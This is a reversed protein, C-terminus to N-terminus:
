RIKLSSLAILALLFSIIWCRTVIKTEELGCKEFHHHIPAMKFIRKGKTIKFYYVQIIVSLAEVVFLGGVISLVIEHKIIVAIIGLIAGLSLSGTDGMFVEAPKSNFWLFGLCSGAIASCLVSLEGAHPVYILQLYHSYISNGAIYSIVAFTGACIIIPVAALGDLGDTINVANSSGIIVISSFPIYFLGLDILTNKFFPFTLKQFIVQDHYYNRVLLSALCAFIFQFIVKQKATIGYHNQRKLKKWDDIFGLSTFSCLVFLSIWIYPNELNTLLLTTISISIMIMIGGLTPTGAKQEHNVCERLPQGGIQLSKLKKILPKGITIVIFFSLFLSFICRFTIYHFLNAIHYKQAYPLLLNYIM